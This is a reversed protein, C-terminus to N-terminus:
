IYAVWCLLCLDMGASCTLSLVVSHCFLFFIITLCRRLWSIARGIGITLLAKGMWSLILNFLVSTIMSWVWWLPSGIQQERRCSWKKFKPLHPWHWMVFTNHPGDRQAGMGSSVGETVSSPHPEYSHVFMWVGKTQECPVTRQHSCAKRALLLQWCSRLM